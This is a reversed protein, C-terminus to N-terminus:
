KRIVCCGWGPIAWYPSRVCSTAVASSNKVICSSGESLRNLGRHDRRSLRQQYTLQTFDWYFRLSHGMYYYTRSIM